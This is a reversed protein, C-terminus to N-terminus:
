GAVSEAEVVKWLAKLFVCIEEVPVLIPINREVRPMRGEPSPENATLEIGTVVADIAMQRSVLVLRRDVENRFKLVFRDLV